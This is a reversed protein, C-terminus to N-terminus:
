LIYLINCLTCYTFFIVFNVFQVFRVFNQLQLSKHLDGVIETNIFHDKKETMGPWIPSGADKDTCNYRRWRM